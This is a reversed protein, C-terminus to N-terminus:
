YILKIELNACLPIHSVVMYITSTMDTNDTHWNIVKQTM